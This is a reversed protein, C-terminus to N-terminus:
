KVQNLSTEVSVIAVGFDDNVSEGNTAHRGYEAAEDVIVRALVYVASALEVM